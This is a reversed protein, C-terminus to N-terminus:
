YYQESRRLLVQPRKHCRCREHHQRDDHQESQSSTRIRVQSCSVRDLRICTEPCMYLDVRGAVCTDVSRKHARTSGYYQEAGLIQQSFSCAREQSQHYYQQPRALVLFAARAGRVCSTPCSLRVISRRDDEGGIYGPVCQAKIAASLHRSHADGVAGHECELYMDKSERSGWKRLRKQM